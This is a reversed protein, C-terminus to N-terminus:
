EGGPALREHLATSGTVTQLIRATFRRTREVLPGVDPAGSRGEICASLLAILEDVRTHRVFSEIPIVQEARGLLRFFGEFKPNYSLGVVPVGMAAALITPHMRAGLLVALRGCVAEYVRPDAIRVLGARGPGMKRLVEASIADDAEHTVNYTPMLLVHARHRAAIEDLVRALLTTLRDCSEQGPVKRLGYRVAYKHPVLTPRHHFWRRVAVGVIPVAPPVGAGALVERARDDGAPQLMLAPDPVRHVPKATLGQALRAADEDRVSVERM